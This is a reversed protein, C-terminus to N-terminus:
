GGCGGITVKVEKKASYFKGDAKVVAMVDSTNGMKIRVSAFGDANDGPIFIAVLPNPNKPVIIAISEVNDMKATVGIPVVAGNEAIEPAKIDIDGEQPEVGGTVSDMAAKLDETEFAAKPWAGLVVSPTLLGASAAAAVAAVSMGSNLFTRRHM